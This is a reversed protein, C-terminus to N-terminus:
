IDIHCKMVNTLILVKVFNILGLNISTNMYSM